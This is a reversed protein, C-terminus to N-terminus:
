SMEKHSINHELILQSASSVPIFVRSDATAAGSANLMEIRTIETLGLEPTVIYRITTVGDVVIKQLEELLVTGNLRVASILAATLRAHEALMESSISPNQPVKVVERAFETQFAKGELRWSGLMYNYRTLYGGVEESMGIGQKIYPNIAFVLNAPKIKNVFVVIEEYWSVSEAVTSIYLTFPQERFAVRGLQWGGLRMNWRGRSLWAHYKGAGIVEDLRQLLFRFTFPVKMQMRGLLRQRRFEISETAPNARIGYILELGIIGTADASLAFQNDRATDMETFYHNFQVDGLDSLADTEKVGQYINPYLGNLNSKM